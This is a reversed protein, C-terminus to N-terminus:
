LRCTHTNGVYRRRPPVPHLRPPRAVGLPRRPTAPGLGVRRGGPPQARSRWLLRGGGVVVNFLPLSPQSGGGPIRRLGAEGAGARPRRPGQQPVPSSSGHWETLASVFPNAEASVQLCQVSSQKTVRPTNSQGSHDLHRHHTCIFRCCALQSTRLPMQFPLRGSGDGEPRAWSRHFSSKVRLPYVIGGHVMTGPSSWTELLFFFLYEM